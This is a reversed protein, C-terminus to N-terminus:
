PCREAAGADPAVGCFRTQGFLDTSALLYDAPDGIDAAPNAGPKLHYDGFITGTWNVFVDPLPDHAVNYVLDSPGCKDATDGGADNHIWLNHSYTVGGAWLPRSVDPCPNNNSINGVIAITNGGRGITSLTPGGGPSDNYAYTANTSDSFDVPGTFVNGIVSVNTSAPTTTGQTTVFLCASSGCGTFVSNKVTIDTVDTFYFNETHANDARCGGVPGGFRNNHNWVGDIVWDTARQIALGYGISSDNSAEAGTTACADMYNPGISGGEMTVHQANGRLFSSCFSGSTGQGPGPSSASQAGTALPWPAQDKCSIDVNRIDEHQGGLFVGGLWLNGAATSLPASDSDAFRTWSGVAMQCTIKPNAGPAPSFTLFDTRSANGADPRCLNEIGNSDPGAAYNGSGDTHGDANYMGDALLVLGSNTGAATNAGAVTGCAQSLDAPATVPTASWVCATGNDHGNPAMWLNASGPPIGVSGSSSSGGGGSGGGSVSSSGTSGTDTGCSMTTVPLTTPSSNNGAGDFADVSASFTTGCALGTITFATGATTGLVSGQLTVRYGTVGVDDHSPQWTLTITSSSNASVVVGDPPTPAQVDPAQVDPAQVGGGATNKLDPVMGFFAALSAQEAPGTPQVAVKTGHETAAESLATQWASSRITSGNAPVVGIIRTRKSHNPRLARLDSPRKLYVVVYDLSERMALRLAVQPSRAIVACARLPGTNKACSRVLSAAARSSLPLSFPEVVVLGLQKAFAILRQQRSATWGSRRTLIARVGRASAMRLLATDPESARNGDVSLGWLSSATHSVRSVGIAPSAGAVVTMSVVVASVLSILAWLNRRNAAIRM